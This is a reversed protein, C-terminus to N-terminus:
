GLLVKSTWIVKDTSTSSSKQIVHKQRDMHNNQRNRHFVVWKHTKRHRVHLTTCIKRLVIQQQTCLAHSMLQLPLTRVFYPIDQLSLWCFNSSFLEILLSSPTVPHFVGICSFIFLKWLSKPYNPTLDCSMPGGCSHEQKERKESGTM